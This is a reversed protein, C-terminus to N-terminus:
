EGMIQLRINRSRPKNDFDVIVIQQWTGLSMKGESIPVVLSAGLISARLHAHGNGDGWRNNHEYPIDTPFLREMAKKFDSILGSEFEITTVGATSGSVFVTATGEKVGSIKLEREIGSTIDLIDCNGATKIGITAGFVKM